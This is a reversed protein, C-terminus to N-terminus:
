ETSSVSDLGKERSGRKGPQKPLVRNVIADHFSTIQEIFLKNFSRSWCNGDLWRKMNIGKHLIIENVDPDSFRVMFCM